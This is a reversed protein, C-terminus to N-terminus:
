RASSRRRRSGGGTMAPGRPPSSPVRIGGGVSLDGLLDDLGGPTAGLGGLLDGAPANTVVPSPAKAEISGGAASASAGGTAGAVRRRVAEIAATTKERLKANSCTEPNAADRLARTADADRDFAEALRAGGAAGAGVAAEVCWAAKYGDQWTGGPAIARHITDALARALGDANLGDCARAFADLVDAPPALKVGGRGCAEDVRRQEESGALVFPAATAASLRAQTPSHPSLPPPSLPPPSPAARTDRTELDRSAFGLNAASTSSSSSHEHVAITRSSPPDPRRDAGGWTGTTKNLKPAGDSADGIIPAAAPAARASAFAFASSSSSSSDSSLSAAAPRDTADSFVAAVAQSAMERVARHPADGKLPDPPGTHNVCSRIAGSHRSMARRFRSDGRECIYKIARLAKLKVVPSRHDVRRSLHEASDDVHDTPMSRMASVLEDLLYVALSLPSSPRTLRPPPTARTSAPDARSPSDRATKLSKWNARVQPM